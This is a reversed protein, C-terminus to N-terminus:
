QLMRMVSQSNLTAPPTTLPIGLVPLTFLPIYPEFDYRVDVWAMAYLDGEDRLDLAPDAAFADGGFTTCLPLDPDVKNERCARVSLNSPTLLTLSDNVILDYVLAAAPPSPAGVSAGGLV